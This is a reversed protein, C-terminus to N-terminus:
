NSRITFLLVVTLVAATVIILPEIIQEFVTPTEKPIEARAFIHEYSNIQNIEEKKVTDQYTEEFEVPSKTIGKTKLFFTYRVKVKRQYTEKEYSNNLSVKMEDIVVKLHNGISSTDSEILVINLKNYQNLIHKRILFDNKGTISFSLTDYDRIIDSKIFKEAINRSLSDFIDLNSRLSSYGQNLIIFFCLLIFFYLHKNGLFNTM